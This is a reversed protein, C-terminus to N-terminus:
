TWWMTWGFLRVAYYATFASVKRHWKGKTSKLMTRLFKKDAKSRAKREDRVWQIFSRDGQDGTRMVYSVDHDICAGKFRKEFWRKYWPIPVSCIQRQSQIHKKILDEDM